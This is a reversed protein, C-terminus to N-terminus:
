PEIMTDGNMFRPLSLHWTSLVNPISDPPNTAKITIEVSPRIESALHIPYPLRSSAPPFVRLLFSATETLIGQDLTASTEFVIM